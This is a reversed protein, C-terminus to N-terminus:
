LGEIIRLGSGQGDTQKGPKAQCAQYIRLKPVGSLTGQCITGLGRLYCSALSQVETVEMKGEGGKEGPNGILAATQFKTSNAQTIFIYV